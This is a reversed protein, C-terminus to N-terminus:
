LGIKIVYTELQENHNISICCPRLLWVEQRSRLYPMEGQEAV